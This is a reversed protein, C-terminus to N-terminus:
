GNSRQRREYGDTAPDFGPAELVSVARGDVRRRQVRGHGFQCGPSVIGSPRLRQPHNINPFARVPGHEYDHVFDLAKGALPGCSEERLARTSRRV